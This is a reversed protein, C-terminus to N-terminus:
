AAEDQQTAAHTTHNNITTIDSEQRDVRDLQQLENEIEWQWDKATEHRRLERLRRRAEAPRKTRRLLSAWLLKAEADEPRRSLIRAILAEAEFWNGQLYESVAAPFLDETEGAALDAKWKAHWRRSTWVGAVWVVMVTSWAAGQVTHGIMEPWVFSTILALNLLLMFAVACSLGILSGCHWLQGLGPWLWLGLRISEKPSPALRM